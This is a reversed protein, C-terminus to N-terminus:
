RGIIEVGDHGVAEVDLRHLAGCRSGSPQRTSTFTSAAIALTAIANMSVGTVVIEIPTADRTPDLTVLL